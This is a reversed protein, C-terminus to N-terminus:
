FFQKQMIAYFVFVSYATESARQSMGSVQSRSPSEIQGAPRHIVNSLVVHVRKQFVHHVHGAVAIV